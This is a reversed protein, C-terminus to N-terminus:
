EGCQEREVLKQKKEQNGMRVVLRCHKSETSSYELFQIYHTLESKNPHGSLVEKGGYESSSTITRNGRRASSSSARM